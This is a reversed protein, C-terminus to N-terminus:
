VQTTWPGMCLTHQLQSNSDPRIRFGINLRNCSKSKKPAGTQFEPIDLGKRGNGSVM